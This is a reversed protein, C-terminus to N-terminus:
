HAVAIAGVHRFVSLLSPAAHISNRVQLQSHGRARRRVRRLSSVTKLTSAGCRELDNLGASNVAGTTERRPVSSPATPPMPVTADEQQPYPNGLVDSGCRCLSILGCAPCPAGDAIARALESRQPLNASHVIEWGIARPANFLPAEIERQREAHDEWSSCLAVDGGKLLYKACYAQVAASSKPKEIRCYGHRDFWRRSWSEWRAHAVRDGGALLLHCHVRDDYKGREIALVYRIGIPAAPEATVTQAGYLEEHIEALWARAAKEAAEPAPEAHNANPRFTLTVFLKWEYCALLDEAWSRAARTLLARPVEALLEAQTPVLAADPLPGSDDVRELWAGERLRALSRRTAEHSLYETTLTFSQSAAPPCPFNGEPTKGRRGDTLYGVM